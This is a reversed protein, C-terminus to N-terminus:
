FFKYAASLYVFRSRADYQTVDYGAQFQNSVPIFLPPDKDFMNRVGLSLRLNKFGTYMLQADWTAVSGVFHREGDLQRRGTEYGDYFNNALTTSWPGTLWTASLYHKWRLVVGGTDADLVPDGNADVLTGVKQSITGGPSTQDFKDMYTGNFNVRLRGPSGFNYLYQASVDYGAVDASGVNAIVAKTLEVEGSPTLVVLGAYAPDGKRFNTVIEQTSPTALIGNIKIRWYDVGFSLNDIPSLVIGISNQKSTEPQLDPNGGGLEPVQLNPNNPFAPDTFQASTGVTQPRYLDELTPARFGTGFSGRLLVTKNPQWRASGKYTTENGVDSYDDYRLAVGFDLGKIVPINLEGFAAKIDRSQDVPPVGGGLGAIDGSELAPAPENKYEEKRFQLGAAYQMMGAPLKFADGTLKADVVDSASKSNLTPGVYKAAPLQANFADTQTLSWPNWDNSGQVVKAYDVQSFYGDIVRGELKSENHSYALEYDQNAITGRLGATIRTQQSTDESTRPGFDFVRSTIALPNGVITNGPFQANLYDAAIKYNPNTPYILLAPDVGDTQFRSDAPTLFSRRVPSPQFRQTVKNESWLADGFLEVADTLAWAANATLGSSVRDPILRVDQASDYACFPAGKSTNTPNKFMKISTCQDTKALPNGYGAGPSNGFGPMRTGEKWTGNAASGTGPIFGGEINGLGTAGAVLYPYVNGTKAYERDTALIEDEKEYMASLTVNFRDKGMDGFGGVVSLKTSQGGGSRTPTGYYAEGTLGTVNKALIFNIVGGVADSGYVASAGDTLVEVREIAALPIANVNVATGGGGAFAAVRRGNVLVLTRESGVGRLSVEARGYTSLGAGQTVSLGGLSSNASIQQMLQETNIAGSRSIDERTIVQVPLAGETDVLRKIASGTIEIRQVEQAYVPVSGAMLGSGFALALGSCLKTKKLM